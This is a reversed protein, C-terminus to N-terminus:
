HQDLLEIVDRAFVGSGGVWRPGFQDTILYKETYIPEIAGGIRAYEISKIKRGTRIVEQDIRRYDNALSSDPWIDYDTYGIVKTPDIFNPTLFWDIATDNFFVYRGTAIEKAWEAFPNQRQASRYFNLETNFAEIKKELDNQKVELKSYKTDARRLNFEYDMQDMGRWDLLFSMLIMVVATIGGTALKSGHKQIFNSLIM